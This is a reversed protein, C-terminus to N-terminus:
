FKGARIDSLRQDNDFYNVELVEVGAKKIADIYAKAEEITDECGAFSKHPTKVEYRTM